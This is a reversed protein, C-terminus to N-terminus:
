KVRFLPQGFQVPAGNEVLAEVMIGRVGANIENMVKLAKIICVVSEENIEQNPQVYPASDPSHARYFTGVMPSVIEKFDSKEEEVERGGSETVDTPLTQTAIAAPPVTAIVPAIPRQSELQLKFGEREFKFVALDNQKTLDIIAKVDDLDLNAEARKSPTDRASFRGIRGAGKTPSERKVADTDLSESRRRAKLSNSSSMAEWKENLKNVAVRVCHYADFKSLV